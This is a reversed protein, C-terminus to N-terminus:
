MQNIKNFSFLVYEMSFGTAGWFFWTTRAQRPMTTKASSTHNLSHLLGADLGGALLIAARAWGGSARHALARLKELIEQARLASRKLDKYIGPPYKKWLEVCFVVEKERGETGAGKRKWIKLSGGTIKRLIAGESWPSHQGKKFIQLKKKEYNVWPTTAQHKEFLNLYKAIPTSIVSFSYLFAEKTFCPYSHKVMNHCIM